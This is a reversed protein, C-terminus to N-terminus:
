GTDARKPMAPTQETRQTRSPPFPQKKSDNEQGPLTRIANPKDFIDTEPRLRASSHPRLTPGGGPPQPGRPKTLRLCDPR